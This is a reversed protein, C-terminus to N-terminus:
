TNTTCNWVDLDFGLFDEAHRTNVQGRNNQNATDRRGDTLTVEVDPRNTLAAEVVEFCTNHDVM